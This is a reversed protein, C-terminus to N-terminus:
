RSQNPAGGPRAAGGPRGGQNRGAGPQQGRKGGPGGPGGQVEPARTPGSANKRSSEISERIRNNYTGDGNTSEDSFDDEKAAADLPPSLLVEEGERLGEVIHIMQNNDLGITVKREDLEGGKVVFVTPAGTVTIVAQIPVHVADDYQEVVIEVKCGMGSRLDPDVDDIYVETNYVKLDPNMWASQSDPLPSIQEMHGFFRKGPLADVTIIAPLGKRIKKLSAEHVDVEAKTADGIPLYILEQREYVEVGEDIPEQSMRRFGGRQASSAYIVLGAAPAYVKAKSIQDDLKALKTEESNFEAEAAKLKAEAQVVDATAKRKTRELAMVAQRVDSEYQDIQRTYTYKKLLELRAQAVRVENDRRQVTLRDGRFETESIYKEKYLKASWDNVDQARALEEEALGILGELENMDTPFFGEMYQQLDQKAFILTLEAQETDSKAQNETIALTETANIFAAKANDRIIEQDIRSDVLSSADIEVLLEGKEVRKGEDVISIISNRGEVESKLIVQERAKITGSELVSIVLPGRRTTFTARDDTKKEPGGSVALLVAGVVVVGIVGVIAIKKGAGGKSSDDSPKTQSM